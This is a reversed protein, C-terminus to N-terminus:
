ASKELVISAGQEEVRLGLLSSVAQAFALNDGVQYIGSILLPALSPEKLRLTRVSYRNMDAVAESLPTNQFVERGEQWALLAEPRPRDVVVETAPRFPLDLHDGFSVRQGRRIALGRGSAEYAEIGATLATVEVRNHQRRINLEGMKLRTRTGGAAIVFARRDDGHVLLGIRGQKLDVCREEKSFRVSVQTLADLILSTGDPLTCRRQEGIGTKLERAAAMQAYFLGGGLGATLVAGTGLARTLFRRRHPTVVASKRSNAALSPTSSLPVAGIPDEGKLPPLLDARLAAVNEWVSTLADFCDRHRASASLWTQFAAEDAPTRDDAHLRAMFAAAEARIKHSEAGENSFGRGTM